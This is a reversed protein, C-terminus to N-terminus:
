NRQNLDITPARPAPPQPPRRKAPASSAAAAPASGIAPPAASSAISASASVSPTISGLASLAPEVIVAPASDITPTAASASLATGTAPATTGSRASIAIVGALLAAAALAIPTIPLRRRPAPVLGPPRSAARESAVGITTEVGARSTVGSSARAVGSVSPSSTRSRDGVFPSLADRLALVSPFRRERDRALCRAIVEDFAPSIDPVYRSPARVDETLIQSLIGGMTDADFARVGTVLEHLVVGLSWVDTRVDVDRSSKVQEPSMYAPSGLLANATTVAGDSIAAVGSLVKSIGFDLVKISRAGGPKDVLFLNSPKLDRHIVGIEHAEALAEIAQLVYDVAEGLPLRTRLELEASLDRGVLYEMLMYPTGDDLSGVDFVRAVHDSRLNAAARAERLFRETADPGRAAEPRLLKIAASQGLVDHKVLLVAGMGGAALARVVRYKGAVLTGPEFVFPPPSDHHAM